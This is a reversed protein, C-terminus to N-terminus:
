PYEDWPLQFHGWDKFSEWDGGWEIDIGLADASAKM